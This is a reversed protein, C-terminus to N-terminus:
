LLLIDSFIVGVIHNHLALQHPVFNRIRTVNKNSMAHTKKDVDTDVTRM